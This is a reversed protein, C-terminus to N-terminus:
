DVYSMAVCYIVPFYYIADFMTNSLLNCHPMIFLHQLHHHLTEEGLPLPPPWLLLRRRLCRHLARAAPSLVPRGPPPRGQPLVVGKDEKKSTGEQYQLPARRRPYSLWHPPFNAAIPPAELLYSKRDIYLTLPKVPTM